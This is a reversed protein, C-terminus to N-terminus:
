LAITHCYWIEKFLSRSLFDVRWYQRLLVIHFVTEYNSHWSKIVIIIWKMVYKHVLAYHTKLNGKLTCKKSCFKCHFQPEKGCEFKLHACLGTRYKYRRGCGNPCYYYDEDTITSIIADLVLFLFFFLLLNTVICNANQWSKM